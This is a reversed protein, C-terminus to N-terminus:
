EQIWPYAKSLALGQFEDLQKHTYQLIDKNGQYYERYWSATMTATEAFNLNPLWQLEHLAKDCSLKLLGAEKFTATDDGTRIYKEAPELKWDEALALLLEHVTHNQNSNPGFNYSEGNFQRNSRLVQALRLYGSLPELVHQWPRTAQPHRIEVAEGEAWSRMADPVIRADAWDGGGIVNGARVTASLVNSDPSSFFSQFYTNYAIEAGAKSASYPDKGGLQDSERYGWIWEKNDYCKDSTIIIAVTEPNVKRLAELIHTTGLVNTSFTGVPDEYSVKVIAQAALHFVFDPQTTRIIDEVAELDRIDGIHHDIVSELGLESFLSKGPLVELSFGTVKAGMHSLWLSLWSGKFGTHGFVLVKAGKFTGNFPNMEVSEM